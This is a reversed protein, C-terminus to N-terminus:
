EKENMTIKHNWEKKSGHLKLFDNKGEMATKL